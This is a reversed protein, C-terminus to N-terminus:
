RLVRDAAALDVRTNIGGLEQPDAHRIADVRHGARRFLAVVDTLYYERAPNDPRVEGIHKWLLGARFCYIASNVERIALQEPTAAKQEVIAEVGGDSGRVIRGYGTPDDLTVTLMTAAASSGRQRDVLAGLTSATLLPCDGYLVVVLSDPPGAAERCALVADGTGKQEPQEVFRVPRGELAAKVHGAQHGVVVFIREPPAVAAAANVVHEILTLGGARHLVKARRSKMRTGLGAALVLVTVPTSM